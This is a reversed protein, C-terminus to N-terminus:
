QHMFAIFQNIIIIKCLPAPVVTPHNVSVPTKVPPTVDKIVPTTAVPTTVAPAPTIPPSTIPALIRDRGYGLEPPVYRRSPAKTPALTREVCEWKL